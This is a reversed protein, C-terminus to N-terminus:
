HNEVRESSGPDFVRNKSSWQWKLWWLKNLLVVILIASTFGWEGATDPRKLIVLALLLGAYWTWTQEHAAAKLCNRAKEFFGKRGTGRRRAVTASLSIYGDMQKEFNEQDPDLLRTDVEGEIFRVLTARGVGSLTEM